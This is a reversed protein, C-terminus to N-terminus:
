ALTQPAVAVVAALPRHPDRELRVVPAVAALAEREVAGVAREHVLDLWDLPDPVRHVGGIWGIVIVAIGAGPVPVLVRLRDGLTMPAAVPQGLRRSPRGRGRGM